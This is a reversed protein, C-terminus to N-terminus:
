CRARGPSPQPTDVYRLVEPGGTESVEIAHMHKDHGPM